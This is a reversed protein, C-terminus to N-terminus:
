LALIFVALAVGGAIIAMAATLTMGTTAIITGRALPNRGIAAIGTLTARSIIWYGFVASILVSLAAITYRISFHVAGGSIIRWGNQVTNVAGALTFPPPADRNEPIAFQVEVTVPIQGIASGDGTFAALARGIAYGPQTALMGEGPTTSSTVWDGRTIPGNSANVQVVTSGQRVVPVAQERGVTSWAVAPQIAAVGVLRADYAETARTIGDEATILVAGNEISAADSAQEYEAVGRSLEEQAWGLGAPVLLGALGCVIAFSVSVRTM